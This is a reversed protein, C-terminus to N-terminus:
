LNWDELYEFTSLRSENYLITQWNLGLQNLCLFEMHKDTYMVSYSESSITSIPLFILRRLM